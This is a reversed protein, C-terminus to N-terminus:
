EDTRYVVSWLWSRTWSVQIESGTELSTLFEWNRWEGVVDGSGPAPSGKRGKVRRWVRVRGDMGGTAVMEGDFSWGVSVVSDSHGTLKVAPFSQASFDDGSEAPIPCFIFGADDEGGSVALPPNPFSPHLAVSFVSQQSAHLSSAGWSNDEARAQQRQYEEYEAEEEEGVPAGIVIEGDYKANDGDSEYGEGNDNADGDNDEDMPVDDDDDEVVEVIDEEELHADDEEHEHQHSM